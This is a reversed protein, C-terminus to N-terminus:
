TFLLNVCLTNWILKDTYDNSENKMSPPKLHFEINITYHAKQKHKIKTKPNKVYLFMVFLKAFYMIYLNHFHINTTIKKFKWPFKQKRDDDYSNILIVLVRHMLM